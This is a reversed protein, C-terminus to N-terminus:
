QAGGFSWEILASVGLMLAIALATIPLLIM